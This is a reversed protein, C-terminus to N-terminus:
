QITEIPSVTAGVLEGNQRVFSVKVPPRNHLAEAMTAALPATDFVVPTEPKQALLAMSQQLAAINEQLQRMQQDQLAIAQTQDNRMAELEAIRVDADARYRDAEARISDSGLRSDMDNERKQADQKLKAIEQDAQDLLQQAQQVQAERQQLMQQAQDLAMQMRQQMAQEGGEDDEAAALGPPLTKKLRDAMEQAGPWDQNRLYIDGVIQWMNPNAQLLQTMAEVSELRRTGYSPGVIIEVDYRGVGLNFIEEGLVEAHAAPMTPDVQAHDATGDEGLIRVMRATDIIKPAIDVLIRGTHRIARALNDIYHYTATDGEQQRAVIARGSQENSPAGFSASHQGTIWKLDEAALQVANLAGTPVTPPAQRQPPPALQGNVDVPDYELYSPNSINSNKWSAEVGKFQGKAGIYPAKPQLAVTETVVSNWYNYARQADMARHTLGSYQLEGDVDLENGIVRVIPIWRGPWERRDIISRGGLKFWEVKRRTGERSGTVQLAPNQAVLEAAKAMDYVMGDSLMVITTPVEKVRFYEAIRVTDGSYWGKSDSAGPWGETNAKPYQREFKKRPMESVIFAFEADSMDMETSDPDGYVSLPNTIREIVMDQEFATDDSYQTLIRWYGVGGAVATWLATEYATDANSVREVHRIIGDFVKATEIDGNDDVPHCKIAPKNQRGDNVIQNIHTSLRDLVLCPRNQSERAKKLKEDWQAGSVFSIAEKYRQRNDRSASQCGEFRERAEELIADDSDAEKAKDDDEIM